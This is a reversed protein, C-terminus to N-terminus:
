HGAAFRAVAAKTLAGHTVSVCADAAQLVAAQHLNVGASALMERTLEGGSTPDPFNQIGHARICRAFALLDGLHQALQARSPQGGDPQLHECATQAVEVQSNGVARFARIAAEKTIAGSSTPDPFSPVGHTRMCHAYAVLKQETSAAGDPTTASGGSDAASGGSTSTSLQAVGPSSSGGGCGAVAIGVVLAAGATLAARRLRRRWRPHARGKLGGRRGVLWVTTVILILSLALLWGSEIWQFTWFRSAPQYTTWQTYGHQVLYHWSSLAQPVGGKGALQPAGEELVKGLASQSVPEGGKTTWRQSIIWASGPVNLKSTVIATLYHRRLYSGAAVALAAYAILTAIIAPVVRRILIGALGGIAFAALTWAPLAIGRLDFLGPALPSVETLSLAQNGAALYPQYYWSFLASLAGAAVTVVIALAVLKALTWRWPGFGQTWAYRFTGTELERALLPAALFAGILAPVAQLVDGSALFHGTGDFGGALGECAISSAPHCATAAAHAHHLQRGLIWVGVALAGLLSALGSLAFRHARWTVWAMRRWPVPRLSAHERPGAPVSLARLATM